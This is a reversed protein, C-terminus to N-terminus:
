LTLLNVPISPAPPLLENVPKSYVSSLVLGM